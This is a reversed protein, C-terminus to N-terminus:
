DLTFAQYYEDRHRKKTRFQAKCTNSLADTGIMLSVSWRVFILTSMLKLMALPSFDTSSTFSYLLCNGGRWFSMQTRM